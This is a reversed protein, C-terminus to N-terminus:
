MITASTIPASGVRYCLTWPSFWLELNPHERGGQIWVGMQLGVELGARSFTRTKGGTGDKSLEFWRTTATKIQPVLAFPPHTVSLRQLDQWSSERRESISRRGLQSGTWVSEIDTHHGPSLLTIVSLPTCVCPWIRSSSNVLQTFKASDILTESVGKEDAHHTCLM